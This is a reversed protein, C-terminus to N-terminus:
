LLERMRKELETFRSWVYEVLQPTFRPQAVFQDYAKDSEYLKRIKALAESNDGGNNWFIVAQNNILGPEPHNDSGWYIPVTGSKFAEFLKETVYGTRNSNEPCISFKFNELYACKINGFENWLRDDNHMFKGACMVPAIQSIQEYMFGRLNDDGGHKCILSCFDTKKPHFENIEEVRRAIDEYTSEPKFLYHIWLPFRLYNPADLYDFGMSIKVHPLANDKYNPYRAPNEGTFFIKNENKHFWFTRPSGFVSVVSFKKWDKPEFRARIFDGLWSSDQSHWNYHKVGNIDHGLYANKAREFKRLLGM